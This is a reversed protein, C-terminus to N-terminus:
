ETRRRKKKTHAGISNNGIGQGQAELLPKNGIHAPATELAIDLPKAWILVRIYQNIPALTIMIVYNTTIMIIFYDKSKNSVYLWVQHHFCM